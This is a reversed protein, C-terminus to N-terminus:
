MQLLAVFSMRKLIIVCPNPPQVSTIQEQPFRVLTRYCYIQLDLSRSRESSTNTDSLCFACISKCAAGSCRFLCSAQSFSFVNRLDIIILAMLCLVSILSLLRFLCLVITVPWETVSFILLVTGTKMMKLIQKNILDM